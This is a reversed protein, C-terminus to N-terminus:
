AALQQGNDYFARRAASPSKFGHRAILWECNYLEAWAILALRLEEVTAFTRSGDRSAM